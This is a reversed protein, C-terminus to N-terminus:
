KCGQASVENTKRERLIAVKEQESHESNGTNTSQLWALPPYSEPPSLFM